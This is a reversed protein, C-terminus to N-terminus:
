NLAMRSTWLVGRCRSCYCPGHWDIRRRPGAPLWLENGDPLPSEFIPPLISEDGVVTKSLARYDQLAASAAAKEYRDTFFSRWLYSKLITRFNGLADPNDPTRAFLAILPAIPARSPLRDEDPVREQKLFEM